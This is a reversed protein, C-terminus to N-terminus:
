PRSSIVYVKEAVPLCSSLHIKDALLSRISKEQTGKFERFGFYTELAGHIDYQSGKLAVPGTRKGVKIPPREKVTAKKAPTKKTSTAM